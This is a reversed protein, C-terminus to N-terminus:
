QAAVDCEKKSKASMPADLQSPEPLSKSWGGM